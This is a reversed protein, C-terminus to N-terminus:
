TTVAAQDAGPTVRTSSRIRTSLLGYSVTLVAAPPPGKDNRFMRALQARNSVDLKRFIKRLHYEVTSASIFLRAAIERNSLHEAVLRAIQEEQATLVEPTGPARPRAREGTARLEARARAAFAEMGMSDFMEFATRLQDRADRRRRQRRLWEGYLLHARALEPRHRTRGLRDIAERYHGEAAEGESLLARTRAEIGLGM